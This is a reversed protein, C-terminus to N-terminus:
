RPVPCEEDDPRCGWRQRSTGEYRREAIRLAELLARCESHSESHMELCHEYSERAERVERYETAACAGTAALSALVLSRLGPRRLRTSIM